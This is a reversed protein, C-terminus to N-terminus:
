NQRSEEALKTTVELFERRADMSIGTRPGVVSRTETDASLTARMSEVDMSGHPFRESYSQLVQKAKELEGAEYYFVGLTMLIAERSPSLEVAKQLSSEATRADGQLAALIGLGWYLTGSDPVQTLGQQLTSRATAISGSRMQEFALAFCYQDNSPSALLAGQLNQLAESTRGMRAYLDGALALYASDKRADPSAQLLSELARPYDSTQFQAYALNYHAEDSAPNAAIAAEFHRVAESYLRFRALLVGEGLLTRFDGNSLQDLQRITKRAEEVRGVKLYAETLQYLGRPRDPHMKVERELENVDAQEQQAASLQERRDIQEFVNQLPYPGPEPNKSLTLFVKMDRGAAEMQHLNREATALKYYARAPKQSTEASHRLFPIADAYRKGDILLSGLEFLAGESNPNIRLSSRLYQEAQAPREQMRAIVGLNFLIVSDDPHLRLGKKLYDKAPELNGLHRQCLGMYAYSRASPDMKLLLKFQAVAADVKGVTFYSEGLAAHLDPPAADLTIGQRLLVIADEYFEQRMSLHAMLLLIDTNEPVLKRARVLVELAEIDLHQAALCQALLYLTDASEHDLQLAREITAQAAALQGDRLYAQGLDHLIEFTQPQLANAKEFERIAPKYQQKSALVVGLSFHLKVDGPNQLSLAAATKLGQAMFGAMLRAQVLNLLVGSDAPHVRQLALIAEKPKRQALLLLGLNYNASRDQPSIRVIERFTRSAQDLKGQAVFSIALNNLTAASHPNIKLAKELVAESEAYQKQQHLIMGLLNLGDVSRPARELGDQVALRAQNLNGRRLLEQAREFDADPSASQAPLWCFSLCVTLIACLFRKMLLGIFRVSTAVTAYPLMRALARRSM